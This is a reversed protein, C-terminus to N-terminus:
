GSYEHSPHLVRIKNCKSLRSILRAPTTRLRPPHWLDLAVSAACPPPTAKKTVFSSFRFPSLESVQFKEELASVSPPRPLYAVEVRFWPGFFVRRRPFPSLFGRNRGGKFRAVSSFSHSLHRSFLNPFSTVSRVCACRGVRPHSAVCACM